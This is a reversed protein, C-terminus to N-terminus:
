ELTGINRLERALNDNDNAAIATTTATTFSTAIYFNVLFILFSAFPYFRLIQNKEGTYIFETSKHKHLFCYYNPAANNKNNAVKLVNKKSTTLRKNTMRKM